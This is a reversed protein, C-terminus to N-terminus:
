AARGPDCTSRRVRDAMWADVDAEIYRIVRPSVRVFRPGDGSVRWKALTHPKVGLRDAVTEPTLYVVTM